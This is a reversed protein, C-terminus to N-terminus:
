LPENFGYFWELTELLAYVASRYANIGVDQRYFHSNKDGLEKCIKVCSSVHAPFKARPLCYPEPKKKPVPIKVTEGSLYDLCNKL